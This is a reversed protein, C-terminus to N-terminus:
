LKPRTEHNEVFDRNWRKLLNDTKSM